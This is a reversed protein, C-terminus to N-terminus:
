KGNEKNTINCVARSKNNFTIDVWQKGKEKM